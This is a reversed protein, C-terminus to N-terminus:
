EPIYDGPKFTMPAHHESELLEEDILDNGEEYAPAGHYLRECALQFRAAIQKEVDELIPSKKIDSAVAGLAQLDRANWAAEDESRLMHAVMEVNAGLHAFAQHRINIMEDESMADITKQPLHKVYDNVEVMPWGYVERQPLSDDVKDHKMFAHFARLDSFASLCTNDEFAKRTAIAGIAETQPEQAGTGHGIEHWVGMFHYQSDLGPRPPTVDTDDQKLIMKHLADGSVQGFPLMIKSNLPPRYTEAFTIHPANYDNEHPDAGMHEFTSPKLRAKLIQAGVERVSAYLRRMSEGCSEIDLHDLHGEMYFHRIRETLEDRIATNKSFRSLPDHLIGPMKELWHAPFEDPKFFLTATGLPHTLGYTQEILAQGEAETVAKKDIQIFSM